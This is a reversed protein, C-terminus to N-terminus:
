LVFDQRALNVNGALELTFNAVGDNNTHAEVITMGSKADFHSSVMGAGMKADAGVFAFSQDGSQAMMADIGSLDIKDGKSFDMIRDVAGFHSDNVSDFRFSDAGKGGSILESISSSNLIDDHLSGVIPGKPGIPGAGPLKDFFSPPLEEPLEFKAVSGDDLRDKFEEISSSLQASVKVDKATLGLSATSVGADLDSGSGEEFGEKFGKSTDDLFDLFADKGGQVKEGIKESLILTADTVKETVEGAFDVIGDVAKGAEKVVSNAADGAGEILDGAGRITGNILDEARDGVLDFREGAKAGIDAIGDGVVKAGAGILTGGTSIIDDAVRGPNSALEGFFDSANEAVKGAGRALSAGAGVVADLAADAAQATAEAADQAAGTAADYVDEATEVVTEVAEEAAKAAGGLAGGVARALESFPWM